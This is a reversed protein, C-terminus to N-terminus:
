FYAFVDDDDAVWFCGDEEDDDTEATIKANGDEASYSCKQEKEVVVVM